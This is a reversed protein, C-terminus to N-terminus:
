GIVVVRFSQATSPASDFGIIVNDNDYIVVDTGVEAQTVLSYVKVVVDTTGFGHEILFTTALNDGTITEAYKSAGTSASIQVFVMATSDILLTGTTVLSWTTRAYLTGEQVNIRVGTFLQDNTDWDDARILVANTFADGAVTVEYIGNQTGDTQGAILVRDGVALTVGDIVLAGTMGLTFTGKTVPDPAVGPAYTGTLNTTSVARVPAKVKGIVYNQVWEMTVLHKPDTPTTGVLAQNNFLNKAAM